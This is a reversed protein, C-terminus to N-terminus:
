YSFPESLRYSSAIKALRNEHQDFFQTLGDVTKTLESSM